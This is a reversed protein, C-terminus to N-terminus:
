KMKSKCTWVNCPITWATIYLPILIMLITDPPSGNFADFLRPNTFRHHPEHSRKYVEPSVVHELRHMVYQVFDQIVLCGTLKWYDIGGEFSYYAAPMIGGMWTGSLYFILLGFGEPNCLQTRVGEWFDYNRAGKRQISVNQATGFQIRIFHYLIVFVQGVAVAVIGLILGLPKPAYASPTDYWETPFLKSYHTPGNESTGSLLLPVTLLSPWLLLSIPPFLVNFISTSKSSTVISTTPPYFSGSTDTTIAHIKVKLNSFSAASECSPLIQPSVLTSRDYENSANNNPSM